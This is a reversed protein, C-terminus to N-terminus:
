IVCRFLRKKKRRNVLWEVISMLRLQADDGNISLLLGINEVVCFRGEGIKEKSDFALLIFLRLKVGSILM